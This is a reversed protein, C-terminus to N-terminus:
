IKAESASRHVMAQSSRLAGSGLAGTSIRLCHSRFPWPSLMAPFVTCFRCAPFLLFCLFIICTLVFILCFFQRPTNLEM